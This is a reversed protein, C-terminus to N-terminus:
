LRRYSELRRSIGAYHESAGPRDAQLAKTATALSKDILRSIDADKVIKSHNVFNMLQTTQAEALDALVDDRGEQSLQELMRVATSAYWDTEEQSADERGAPVAGLKALQSLYQAALLRVNADQSTRLVRRLNVEADHGQQRYSEFWRNFASHSPLKQSNSEWQSNADVKHGHELWQQALPLARDWQQADVAENLQQSLLEDEGAAAREVTVLRLHPRFAEAHQRRGAENMLSLM